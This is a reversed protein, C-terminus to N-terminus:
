TGRSGWGYHTRHPARISVHYSFICLCLLCCFRQSLSIPGQGQHWGKKLIGCCCTHMNLFTEGTGKMYNPCDFYITLVTWTMLNRPQCGECDCNNFGSCNFNHQFQCISNPDRSINLISPLNWPHLGTQISNICLRKYQSQPHSRCYHYRGLFSLIHPLHGWYLSPVSCSSIFSRLSNCRRGRHLSTDRLHAYWKRWNEHSFVLSTDDSAVRDGM